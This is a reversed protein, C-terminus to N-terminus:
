KEKELQIDVLEKAARVADYVDKLNDYTEKFEEAKEVIELIDPPLLKKFDKPDFGNQKLSVSARTFTNKIALTKSTKIKYEALEEPTSNSILWEMDIFLDKIDMEKSSMKVRAPVIVMTDLNIYQSM